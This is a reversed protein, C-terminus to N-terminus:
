IGEFEPNNIRLKLDELLEELMLEYATWTSRDQNAATLEDLYWEAYALDSFELKGEEIHETLLEFPSLNM